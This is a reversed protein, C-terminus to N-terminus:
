KSFLSEIFSKDRTVGGYIPISTMTAWSREFGSPNLNRAERLLDLAKEANGALYAQLGHHLYAWPNTNKSVNTEKAPAQEEGEVPPQETTSPVSSALEPASPVSSALELASPVSSAIENVSSVSSAVEPASFISSAIEKVSSVSSAVEPEAELTAAAKNSDGGNSSNLEQALNEVQEILRLKQQLKAAIELHHTIAAHIRNRLEGTNVM